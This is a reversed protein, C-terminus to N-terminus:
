AGDRVEDLLYRHNKVITRDVTCLPVRRAASHASILRDFPDRTWVLELAAKMLAVLSIEDVIFREDQLIKYTFEPNVVSLRGIEALYQIELLTVPSIGWPAYKSLWPYDGLRESKTVMWVLFHTDLLTKM